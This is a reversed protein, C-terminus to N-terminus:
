YLDKKWQIFTNNSIPFPSSAGIPFGMLYEGNLPMPKYFVKVFNQCSQHKMMSACHYNAMTTPTHLGGIIDFNTKIWTPYKIFVEDLEADTVIVSSFDNIAMRNVLIRFATACVLPSQANGIGRLQHRRVDVKAPYTMDNANLSWCTGKLKPLSDIHSKLKNFRTHDKVALLWFRNRQHDAGLDKCSLRCISVSYGISELDSKAHTIARLVVNEGFVIPANSEIIFRFMHDWLNKEAINKGHAATSFAQCPFGGCLVDFSGKFKSGDLTTIDDHIAFPEMWGDRQRQLLVSKAYPDIEVGGCCLHDLIIGGYIGGGIGAFLHFEKIKDKEKMSIRNLYLTQHM